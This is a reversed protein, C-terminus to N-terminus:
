AARARLRRYLTNRSIGLSRAAESLNGGCQALVQELRQMAVDHLTGPAVEDPSGKWARETARLDEALDDPLHQWDIWAEHEDMLACATRLANALQRLNGPWTYRGMLRAMDPALARVREPSIEALLRAVLADLDQRERLPPLPLSLGNIRYYLDERFRGAKLEDRLPRHTACVLQVDVPVPKGGGLPLVQREQLVRLL